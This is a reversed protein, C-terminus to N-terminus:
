QALRTEYYTRLEQELQPPFYDRAALTPATDAQLVVSPDQGEYWGLNPVHIAYGILRQLSEPLDRAIRPPVALYQNEAQRLWGLAYSFTLATRPRASKNAGGSHTASGLYILVSGRPMVAQCVADPRPQRDVPQKHSGVVIRTAGNEETFDDYAWLANVMCEFGAHEFPYLEQDKHLIQEPEGPHIQIAQTLNLRYAGRHPGLIADMVELVLPHAVLRRAAPSKVILGGMRKTRRGVFYGEGNPTNAFFPDLDRAVADMSDTSALGRVIACGDRDITELLEKSGIDPGVSVITMNM